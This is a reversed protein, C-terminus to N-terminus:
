ERRERLRSPLEAPVMSYVPYPAAPYLALPCPPRCLLDEDTHVQGLALRGPLSYKPMIGKSSDGELLPEHCLPRNEFGGHTRLTFFLAKETRNSRAGASLCAGQVTALSEHVAGRASHSENGLGSPVLAPYLLHFYRDASAFWASFGCGSAPIPQFGQRHERRYSGRYSQSRVLENRWRYDQGVRGAFPNEASRAM